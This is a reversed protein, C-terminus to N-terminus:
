IPSCVTTDTPGTYTKGACINAGLYCCPFLVQELEYQVSYPFVSSKCLVVKTEIMFVNAKTNQMVSAAVCLGLVGGESRARM